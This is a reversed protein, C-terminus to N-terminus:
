GRLQRRARLTRLIDITFGVISAGIVIYDWPRPLGDFLAAVVQVCLLALSVRFLPTTKM